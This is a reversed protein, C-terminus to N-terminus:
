NRLIGDVGWNTEYFSVECGGFGFNTECFGGVSPETEYSGVVRMRLSAPVARGKEVSPWLVFRRSTLRNWNGTYPQRTFKM